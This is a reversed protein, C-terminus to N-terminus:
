AVDGEAMIHLFVDDMTGKIVEFSAILPEAKKLLSLAQLTSELRITYIEQKETYSIAHEELWKVGDIPNNFVVAMSDYAYKTKLADPTGQAVIKGAKLVLVQHAVAAEEMYHTTLFVTMNTELQLQKIAQWVLQRTQPDLGTTPEDLFLITPRHILARAIDARRKQGGSLTGYKQKEIDELHLYSSIFQYNEALQTKALGYTRGRHLINEQVTLRDDLLSQQFVVGISKRIDANHNSVDLTFNNITVNGSSKKLLTCLIEITTSKGAGNAGLFAFLTGREVTFSIDNVAHHDGYQKCLNEVKVAFTM